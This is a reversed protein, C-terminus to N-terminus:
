EVWESDLGGQTLASPISFHRRRIQRDIRDLASPRIVPM